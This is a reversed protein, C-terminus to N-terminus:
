VVPESRVVGFMEEISPALPHRTTSTSSTAYQRKVLDIYMTYQGDDGMYFTDWKEKNMLREVKLQRIALNDFSTVKFEKTINPLNKYMWASNYDFEEDHKNLWVEGRRFIKYGLILLKLGKRYLKTLEEPKIVGYIVHVVTNKHETLTQVLEDSVETVSIGLGYVLKDEVLHSIFDFNELFHKQNVTINAIINKNKLELLFPVLDPHDLPNGGGLALETYPSLTQIFNQDLINGHLGKVTSNEHCFPCGRDCYDTIKLDINEPFSPTLNDLDNERVKTGDDYISVEYNGNTYKGLIKM